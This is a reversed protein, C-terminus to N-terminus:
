EAARVPQDPTQAQHQPRIALATGLLGITGCIAFWVYFRVTNSGELIWFTPLSVVAGAILAYVVNVWVPAAYALVLNVVLAGIVLPLLLDEVEIKNSGGNSWLTPSDALGLSIILVAGVLLALLGIIVSAVRLRVSRRHSRSREVYEVEGVAAIGAGGTDGVRAQNLDAGGPGADDLGSTRTQDPESTGSESTVGGPDAPEARQDGAVPGPGAATLALGTLSVAGGAALGLMVLIVQDDQSTGAAASVLVSLLGIGFGWWVLVKGRRGSARRGSARRVPGARTRRGGVMLVVGTTGILGLVLLAISSGFMYYSDFYGGLEASQWAVCVLLVGCWLGAARGVWRALVAVAFLLVVAVSVRNDGATACNLGHSSTSLRICGARVAGKLGALFVV